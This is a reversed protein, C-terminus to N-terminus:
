GVGIELIGLFDPFSGLKLFVQLRGPLMHCLHFEIIKYSQFHKVLKLHVSNLRAIQFVPLKFCPCNSVRAIQLVYLECFMFKAIHAFQM